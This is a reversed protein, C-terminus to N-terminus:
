WSGRTLTRPKSKSFAAEVVVNKALALRCVPKRGRCAGSWGAFKWGPRAQAKLAIETGAALKAACRRGCKIGGGTIIGLGRKHVSLSVMRPAFSATVSIDGRVTLACVPNTGSCGNGSWGAFVSWKEPKATLTLQSGVPLWEVCHDDCDMNPTGDQVTGSGDGIVSVAIQKPPVYGVAILAQYANLVCGCAVALGPVKTGTSMLISKIEASTLSPRFSKLLGVTGSVVATAGSTGCGAGVRGQSDEVPNCWPAAIDVWSAGYDSHSDLQNNADVGAVRIAHPSDSALRNASPDSSGRNGAGIVVTIGSNLAATAAEDVSPDTNYGLSLNIIQPGHATTWNIGRALVDNTGVNNTTVKVPLISCQPCVGPVGLGDNIGAGITATIGIGHGFEDAVNSSGDIANYGALLRPSALDPLQVAGGDVVAVTVASSGLTAYWAAPLDVQQYSQPNAYGPDNPVVEPKAASTAAAATGSIVLLCASLFSALAGKGARRRM